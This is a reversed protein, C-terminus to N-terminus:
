SMDKILRLLGHINWREIVTSELQFFIIYIASLVSEEVGHTKNRMALLM